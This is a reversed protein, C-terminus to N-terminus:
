CVVLSMFKKWAGGIRASVAESTGSYCSIIDGLYCFKEVEALVNEGREFELKEEVSGNHGLCTRCVFVDWCSLLSMERPMDSCRCHVWRQCKMCQISNCGVQEGCVVCPDLKSISSKKGFLFQMDKTKNVNGRLCKGDVANKWRRYKGMVEDLSEGCLVLNDAYLLEMLSGDGCRRDSCGNGHYIFTSEFASGEHVGFKM